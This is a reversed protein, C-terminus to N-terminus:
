EAGMPCLLVERGTYAHVFRAEQNSSTM